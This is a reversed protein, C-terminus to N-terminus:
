RLYIKYLNYAELVKVLCAQMKCKNYLYKYLTVYIDYIYIYLGNTRSM